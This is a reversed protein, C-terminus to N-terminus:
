TPMAVHKGESYFSRILSRRVKGKKEFVHFINACKAFVAITAFFSRCLFALWGIPRSFECLGVVVESPRKPPRHTLPHRFTSERERETQRELTKNTETPPAAVDSPRSRHFSGGVWALRFLFLLWRDFFPIAPSPHLGRNMWKILSLLHLSWSVGFSHCAGLSRRMSISYFIKTGLPLGFECNERGHGGHELSFHLRELGRDMRQRAIISLSEVFCFLTDHRGGLRCRM